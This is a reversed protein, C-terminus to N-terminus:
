ASPPLQSSAQARRESRQRRCHSLNLRIGKFGLRALGDLERETTKDDIVAVGRADKGRAKM